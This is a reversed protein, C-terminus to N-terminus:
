CLCWPKYWFHQGVYCSKRTVKVQNQHQQAGILHLRVMPMSDASSFSLQDSSTANSTAESPADSFCCGGDDDDYMGEPAEEM